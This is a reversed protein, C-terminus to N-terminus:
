ISFVAMTSCSRSVFFSRADFSLLLPVIMKAPRSVSVGVSLALAPSPLSCTKRRVSFTIQSRSGGDSLTFRHVYKLFSLTIMWDFCYLKFPGKARSSIPLQLYDTRASDFVDPLSVSFVRRPKEGSSRSRDTFVGGTLAERHRTPVLHGCAYRPCCAYPSTERTTAWM